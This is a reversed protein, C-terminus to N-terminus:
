FFYEEITLNYEGWMEGYDIAEITAIVTLYVVLKEREWLIERGRETHIYLYISIKQRQRLIKLSVQSCITNKVKNKWVVIIGIKYFKISCHGKLNKYWGIM